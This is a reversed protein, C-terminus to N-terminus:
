FTEDTLLAMLLEMPAREGHMVLKALNTLQLDDPYKELLRGIAQLTQVGEVTKKQRAMISLAEDLTKGQGILQGLARNRTGGTCSMWMDNGWCQSGISFTRQVAGLRRVCFREIENAM